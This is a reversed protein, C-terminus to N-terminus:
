RMKERERVNKGKKEEKSGRGYKERIREKRSGRKCKGKGGGKATPRITM